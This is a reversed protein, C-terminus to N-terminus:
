PAERAILVRRARRRRRVQVLARLWVVAAYLLLGGAVTGVAVPRWPGSLASNVWGLLPVHYWLVGRVQEPRVAELDNAANADGRMRFSRDGAGGVLVGAVRHTVVAPAGSELQYTVVDGVRVAAPDVARVVVLEGPPLGPSMSGTLVTYVSAGALRPVLVMVLLVGGALTLVAWAGARRARVPWRATRHPTGAGTTM